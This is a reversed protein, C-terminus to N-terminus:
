ALFLLPFLPAPLGPQRHSSTPGQAPASVALLAGLSLPTWLSQEAALSGLTVAATFLGDGQMMWSPAKAKHLRRLRCWPEPGEWTLGAPLTPGRGPFRLSPIHTPGASVWELGCLM